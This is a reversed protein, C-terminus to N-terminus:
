REEEPKLSLQAIMKALTTLEEVSEHKLDAAQLWGLAMHLQRDAETRVWNKGGAREILTTATDLERETLPTDRLYLEDLRRGSDTNSTLAAVVPLSKKGARLDAKWPKGTKEPEGWIGLLDDVLQFALGLHYGFQQLRKSQKPTGGGVIAGVMCAYGLLAATKNGATRLCELMDISQHEADLDSTQGNCLDVLSRGLQWLTPGVTPGDNSSLLDVALALLADGALIAQPVGFVSWVTPRHRRMRDGDMIDDHLLSFNHVLEVAAAAPIGIESTGGVAQACILTLTPRIAKGHNATIPEGEADCWGVHYRCITRVPESLKDMAVKLVPDIQPRAWALIQDASRTRPATQTEVVTEPAGWKLGTSKFSNFQVTDFGKRLRSGLKTYSSCHQRDGSHTDEAAGAGAHRM